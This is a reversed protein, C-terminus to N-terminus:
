KPWLKSLANKMSPKSSLLMVKQQSSYVINKCYIPVFIRTIFNAWHWLSSQMRPIVIVKELFVRTEWDPVEGITVKIEQIFASFHLGEASNPLVHAFFIRAHTAYHARGM